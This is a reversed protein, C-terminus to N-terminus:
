IVEDLWFKRWKQGFMLVKNVEKMGASNVVIIFARRVKRVVKNYYNSILHKYTFLLYIIIILSDVRKYM